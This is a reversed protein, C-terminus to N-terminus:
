RRPAHPNVRRRSNVTAIDFGARAAYKVNLDRWKTAPRTDASGNEHPGSNHEAGSSRMPRSDLPRGPETKM